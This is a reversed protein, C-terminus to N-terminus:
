QDSGPKAATMQKSLRHVRALREHMPLALDARRRARAGEDLEVAGEVRTRLDYTGSISDLLGDLPLRYEGGPLRIYPVRGDRIWNTVMRPSVRLLEGAERTTLM